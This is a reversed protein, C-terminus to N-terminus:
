PVGFIGNAIDCFGRLCIDYLGHVLFTNVKHKGFSSTQEGKNLLIFSRYSNQISPSFIECRTANLEVWRM